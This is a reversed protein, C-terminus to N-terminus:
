KFKTGLYRSLAVSPREVMIHLLYGLGIGALVSAGAAILVATFAGHSDSLRLRMVLAGAGMVVLWNMLYFSYSIRGLFQIVRGNMVRRVSAINGFGLLAVLIAGFITTPLDFLIPHWGYLPDFEGILCLALVVVAFLAYQFHVSIKRIAAGFDRVLAGAYFIYLYHFVDVGLKQHSHLLVAVSLFVGLLAFKYGASDRFEKMFYVLPFIASTFLELRITWLPPNLTHRILALNLLLIKHSIVHNFAFFQLFEPSAEPYTPASTLTIRAYLYLVVVSAVAPPVLRVFRRLYFTRLNGVRLTELMGSLFFGSM